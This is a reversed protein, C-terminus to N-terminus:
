FRYMRLILVCEVFSALLGRAELWPSSNGSYLSMREHYVVSASLCETTRGPMGPTRASAWLSLRSACQGGVSYTPEQSTPWPLVACLVFRQVSPLNQTHVPLKDPQGSTDTPSASATERLPSRTSTSALCLGRVETM